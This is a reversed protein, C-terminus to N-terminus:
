NEKVIEVFQQELTNKVMHIDKIEISESIVASIFKSLEDELHDTKLQYVLREDDTTKINDIPNNILRQSLRIEVIKQKENKNKLTELDGIYAIKGDKLIAARDCLREIESMDHSTIVITKGITKLKMIKEYLAVKSEVDLGATPEDLFLIDPNGIHALALHLKRKQGTSLQGYRKSLIDSLGHENMLSSYNKKGKYISFLKIAECVKIEAQLSSSQLQVGFTGNIKITGKEYHRLGEICELTTTKGAGNVGLLGFIEGQYVEFSIGNIVKNNGYSKVLGDVKLSINM